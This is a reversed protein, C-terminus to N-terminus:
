GEIKIGMNKASGAVIFMASDVDETNLDSLKEETIKRLQEQTIKGVVDTKANKAGSEIGAAKKLFYSVPAKFLQFSFSKDKYVFIKVPVPESNRDKTQDNFQKTFEPMAIGLGALAPGPKAQGAIFQLKAVRVVEKGKILM